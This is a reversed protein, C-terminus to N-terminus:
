SYTHIKYTSHFWCMICYLNYMDIYLTHFITCFDIYMRLLSHMRSKRRKRCYHIGILSAVLVILGLGIIPAIIEVYLM